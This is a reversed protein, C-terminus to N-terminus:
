WISGAITQMEVLALLRPWMLFEDFLGDFTRNAASNNGISLDILPKSQTGAGATQASYSAEALAVTPTAFYMRLTRDSATHTVFLLTYNSGTIPAATTTTSANSTGYQQFVTISTLNVFVCDIRSANWMRGGSLHGMTRPRLLAAYTYDDASAWAANHAIALRGTGTALDYDFAENVGLLGTQGLTVSGSITADLTAGGSGANAATTGSTERLRLWITPNTAGIAALYEALTPAAGGGFLGFYGRRPSTRFTM